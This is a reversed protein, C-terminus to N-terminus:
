PPFKNTRIVWARPVNTVVAQYGGGAYGAGQAAAAGESVWTGAPAEFESVRTIQVGWDRRIALDQRLADESTYRRNSFWTVKRGTRNNVGHYKFFRENTALQRNTYRGGEFTDAIKSDLTPGPLSNPPRGPVVRAGGKIGVGGGLITGGVTLVKQQWSGQGFVAGGLWHGGAGFTAGGVVSGGLRAAIQATTFGRAALGLGGGALGLVFLAGHAWGPVESGVPGCAATGGGISVNGSGPGIAFGCSGKDGTRAAYRRNVFVTVSGQAVMQPGSDRSCSAPSTCFAAQRGNVRVNPSGDVLKGVTSTSFGGLFEGVTGGLSAGGAVASALLLPAAAGGTGVIMAGVVAGILVGAVLGALANTHTVPDGVRAAAPM